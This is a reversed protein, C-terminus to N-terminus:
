GALEAYTLVRGTDGDILAVRGGYRAAGGLAFGPLPVPALEVDDYPSQIIM